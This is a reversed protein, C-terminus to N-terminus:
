AWKFEYFNYLSSAYCEVGTIDKSYAINNVQFFLPIRPVDEKLILLMEKIIEKRKEPDTEANQQANLEDYEPNSYFSYNSGAGFNKSDMADLPISADLIHDVSGFTAMPLKGNDADEFLASREMVVIEVDVGIKAWQQQLVQGIKQTYDERVYLQTSFGDPYGAEALLAKAKEIDVPDRPVEVYGTSSPNIGEDAVIGAGDMALDIVEQRDVALNMAQRVLKNDFPEINVNLPINWFATSPKEKYELNENNLVSQKSVAPVSLVVDADGTELAVMATTSESINRVVINKIDPAGLYYNDNATLSIHDGPVWETVKYPGTGVPNNQYADEGVKNMIEESVICNNGQALYKLTAACPYKLYLVATQDDVAEVHDFPQTFRKSQAENMGRELSYKVDSAKLPTGDQFQVGERLHFTYSMGDESIDWSEALAPQIEGNSDMRVLPDHTNVIMLNDWVGPSKQPDMTTVEYGLVFTMTDRQETTGESTSDGANSGGCATLLLVALVLCVMRLWNNRKM